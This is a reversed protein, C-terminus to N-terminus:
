GPLQSGLAEWAGLKPRLRGGQRPIMPFPMVLTPSVGAAGPRGRGAAPGQVPRQGEAGARLHIDWIKDRQGRSQMQRERDSGTGTQGRHPSQSKSPRAEGRGGGGGPAIKQTHTHGPSQFREREKWSQEAHGGVQAQRPGRWRSGM